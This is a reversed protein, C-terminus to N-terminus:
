TLGKEGLLLTCKVAFYFLKKYFIDDLCKNNILLTQFITDGDVSYKTEVLSWFNMILYCSSM